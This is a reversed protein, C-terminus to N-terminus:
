LWLEPGIEYAFSVPQSGPNEVTVELPPRLADDGSLGPFALAETAIGDVSFRPATDGTASGTVLSVTAGPTVPLRPRGARAVVSVSGDWASTGSPGTFRVGFTQPTRPQLTVDTALAGGADRIEFFSEGRSETVLTVEAATDGINELTFTTGAGSAPQGARLAVGQPASTFVVNAAGSTVNTALVNSPASSLTGDCAPVVRLRHYYTGIDTALFSASQGRLTQADRITAFSGSTSREVVYVIGDDSGGEGRADEWSLVYTSSLATSSPGQLRPATPATCVGGSTFRRVDTDPGSTGSCSSPAVVRWYYTSGTVLGSVELSTQSLGRRYLPPPSTRGLYLDYASANASATWSLTASGGVSAGEAPASLSFPGPGACTGRVKFDEVESASVVRPDCAARAVVAWYYEAGPTLGSVDLTSATLGSARLAPPRTTGLYVDYTAPIPAAQWALTVSPDVLADSRPFVLRVDEPLRCASAPGGGAQTVVMRADDVEVAASRPAGSNAAVRITLTTNGRGTSPTLTIWDESHARFSCTSPAVM